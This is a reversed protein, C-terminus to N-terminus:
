VQAVFHFYTCYDKDYVITSLISFMYYCSALLDLDKTQNDHFQKFTEINFNAKRRDCLIGSSNHPREKLHSQSLAPGDHCTTKQVQAFHKLFAEPPKFIWQSLEM